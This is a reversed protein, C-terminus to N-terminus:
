VWLMMSGNASDKEVSKEDGWVSVKYGNFCYSEMGTKGWIRNIESKSELKIFLRGKKNYTNWILSIMYYKDQQTQSIESLM